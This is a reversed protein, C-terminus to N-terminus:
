YDGAGTWYYRKLLRMSGKLLRAEITTPNMLTTLWLLTTPSM